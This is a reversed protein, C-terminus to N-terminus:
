RHKETWRGVFLLLDGTAVSVTAPRERVENHIGYPSFHAAYDTLEWRLGHTTVGTCPGIGILSVVTGPEADISATGSVRSIDFHDDHLHIDAQAAYVVLVTLNGLTHDARGGSAAVIDIRGCDAEICYQVAKELDTTDPDDIRLCREPGLRERTADSVSDLDGVVVAPEIGAAFAKDGGGDAGVVLNAGRALDVVLALSPMDGNAVIMARRAPM